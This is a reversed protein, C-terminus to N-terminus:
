FLWLSIYCLSQAAWNQAIHACFYILHHQRLSLTINYPGFTSILRDALVSPLIPSELNRETKVSGRRMCHPHSSCAARIVLPLTQSMTGAPQRGSVSLWTWLWQKGGLERCALWCPHLWLRPMAQVSPEPAISSKQPSFSAREVDRGGNDTRSNEGKEEQTQLVTLLSCGRAQWVSRDRCCATNRLVLKETSYKAQSHCSPASARHVPVSQRMLGERSGERMLIPHSVSSPKSLACGSHSSM